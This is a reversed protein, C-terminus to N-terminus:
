IRCSLPGGLCSNGMEQRLSYLMCDMLCSGPAWHYLMSILRTLLMQSLVVCCFSREEPPLIFIFFGSRWKCRRKPRKTELDRWESERLKCVLAPCFLCVFLAALLGLLRHESSTQYQQENKIWNKDVSCCSCFLSQTLM